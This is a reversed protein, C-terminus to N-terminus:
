DGLLSGFQLAPRTRALSWGEAADLNYNRSIKIKKYM